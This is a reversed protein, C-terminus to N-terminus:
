RKWLGNSRVPDLYIREPDIEIETPEASGDWRLAGAGGEMVVSVLHDRDATRIRVPVEGGPWAPDDCLITAEVSRGEVRLDALRLDPLRTTGVYYDLIGDEGIAARFEELSAFAHAHGDAFARLRERLDPVRQELLRFVLAGRWYPVAPHDLYTADRLTAENAFLLGAATRRLDLHAVYARLTARFLAREREEDLLEGVVANGSWEALGERLWTGGRGVVTTAVRHGWWAHSCEHALLALRPTEALELYRRDLVVFSGGCYSPGRRRRPEVVVSITEEGTPGFWAELQQVVRSIDDLMREPDLFVDPPLYLALRGRRHEELRGVVLPVIQLAHTSRFSTRSVRKGPALVALDTRVEVAADFLEDAMTPLWFPSLHTQVADADAYFLGQGSPKWRYRLRFTVREGVAADSELTLLNPVGAADAELLRLVGEFGGAGLSAGVPKGDRTVELGEVEASFLFRLPGPRLVQVTLACDVFLGDEGPEAVIKYSLIDYTHLRDLLAQGYTVQWAGFLLLILSTM